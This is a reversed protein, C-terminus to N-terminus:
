CGRQFDFTFSEVYRCVCDFIRGSYISSSDKKVIQECSNMLLEITFGFREAIKFTFIM